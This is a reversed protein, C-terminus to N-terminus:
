EMCSMVRSAAAAGRKKSIRQLHKKIKIRAM